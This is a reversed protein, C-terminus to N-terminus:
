SGRSTKILVKKDFLIAQRDSKDLKQKFREFISMTQFMITWLVNPVPCAFAAQMEGVQEERKPDKSRVLNKTKKKFSLKKSTYEKMGETQEM